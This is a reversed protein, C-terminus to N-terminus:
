VIQPMGNTITNFDDRTIETPTGWYTKMEFGSGSSGFCGDFLPCKFYKGDKRLQIQDLRPSDM